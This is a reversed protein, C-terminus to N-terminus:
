KAPEDKDKAAGTECVTANPSRMTTTPSREVAREFAILAELPKGM